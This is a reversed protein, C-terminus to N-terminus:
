EIGILLAPSPLKKVSRFHSFVNTGGGGGGGGGGGRGREGWGGGGGGGGWGGM